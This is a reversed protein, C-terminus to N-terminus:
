CKLHSFSHGFQELRLLLVNYSLFINFNDTRTLFPVESSVLSIRVSRLVLQSQLIYNKVRVTRCM